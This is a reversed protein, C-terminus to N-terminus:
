LTQYSIETRMETVTNRGLGMQDLHSLNHNTGRATSDQGIGYSYQDDKPTQGYKTKAALPTAQHGIKPFPPM